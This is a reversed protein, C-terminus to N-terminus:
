CVDECSVSPPAAGGVGRSCVCASSGQLTHPSTCTHMMVPRDVCARRALVRVVNSRMQLVIWCHLRRLGDPNGQAQPLLVRQLLLLPTVDLVLVRLCTFVSHQASGSSM